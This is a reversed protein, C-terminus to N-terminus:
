EKEKEVQSAIKITHFLAKFTKWGGLDELYEKNAEKYEEISFEFGLKEAAEVMKRENAETEKESINSLNVNKFVITAFEDDEFLKKTFNLAQEKAM